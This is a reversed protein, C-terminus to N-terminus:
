LLPTFKPKASGPSAVWVLADAETEWRDPSISFSAGADAGSAVGNRRATRHSSYSAQSSVPKRSRVKLNPCTRSPPSLRPRRPMM